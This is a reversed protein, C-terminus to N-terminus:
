AEEDGSKDGGGSESLENLFETMDEVQSFLPAAVYMPRQHAIALAICDSPRADIEVIKTGLENKERLILRAYYTSQKLATIVIRELTIGFGKFISGILDHTQPRENPAKRLFNSIVRGM